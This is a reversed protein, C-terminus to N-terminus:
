GGAPPEIPRRVELLALLEAIAEHDNPRGAAGYQEEVLRHLRQAKRIRQEVTLKLNERLLARNVKKKYVEIVPDYLDAPPLTDRAANV